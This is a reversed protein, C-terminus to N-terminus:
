GEYKWGNKKCFKKYKRPFKELIANSKVLCYENTDSNYAIAVTNM